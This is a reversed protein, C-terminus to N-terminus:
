WVTPTIKHHLQYVSAQKIKLSLVLFRRPSKSVLIVLGYGGIKLGLGSVTVDPKSALGGSVTAASKSTLGASITAAPKSALGVSVTAVPKSALSVSIM